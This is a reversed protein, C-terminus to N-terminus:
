MSGRANKRDFGKCWNAVVRAKMAYFDDWMGCYNMPDFYDLMGCYDIYYETSGLLHEGFLDAVIYLHQADFDDLPKCHVDCNLNQAGFDEQLKCRVSYHM